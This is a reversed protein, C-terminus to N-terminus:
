RQGGEKDAGLRLNVEFLFPAGSAREAPIAVISQDGQTEVRVSQGFRKRLEALEGEEAATLARDVAEALFRPQALPEPAFIITYTRFNAGHAVEIWKDLRPPFSYDIGTALLNDKVGWASNPQATL